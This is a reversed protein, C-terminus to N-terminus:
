VKELQKDQIGDRVMDAIEIVKVSRRLTLIMSTLLYLPVECPGHTKQTVSQGEGREKDEKKDNEDLM